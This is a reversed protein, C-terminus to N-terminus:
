KKKVSSFEDNNKWGWSLNVEDSEEELAETLVLM